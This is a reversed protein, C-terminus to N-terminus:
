KKLLAPWNSILTLPASSEDPSSSVLFRGDRTVDYMGADFNRPHARFLASPVGVKLENGTVAVSAAMVTNDPAFYYVEKGDRSWVPQSGGTNSVQWKRGGGPFPAIYVQNIGSEDSFFAIWRGDPSFRASRQNFTSPMFLSPKHEGELPLIWIGNSRSDAMNFAVFRGDRSWDTAITDASALYLLEAPSQSTASQRFLSRAPSQVSSAFVIAKGDPAWLPGRNDTGSTTFRTHMDRGPEYIWIDAKGALGFDSVAVKSGDPSVAVELYIGPAGATGSQKGHRDYWILEAKNSVAGPQYVLMGSNSVSFLARSFLSDVQLDPAIPAPEGKLEGRKADFPQANLTGERVFFLEGQSYEANFATALVLKSSKDSLSGMRVNSENTASGTPSTVYLFHEGDPLFHPWRHSHEERMETVQVPKGGSAPVSFIPSFRGASFVIINRIGWSGGRADEVDCIVEPPGGEVAIKKLKGGAFFGLYRGDPSWFPARSDDTGPLPKAETSDLSRLWVSRRGDKMVEFAIKTGDPSIAPAGNFGMLSFAAKEPPLIATRVVPQPSSVVRWYAGGAVLALLLFAAATSWATWERRKRHAAVPAAVGAQSGGEAIWKLQLKVDHATQWREDPDKAVCTKVVREFAPPTLPQLSSIPPPESALISAVLSAQTKGEFPRRGAAMEYLVCGFAFLDSRPDADKGEIQEPAMYQFTGVITGEATLPRQDQSTTMAGLASAALTAGAMPKALGFDLLKLGDKTVMVNGPKLDRHVVGQKHARELAEAMQIGYALVQEIPLPGRALREALSEGELYELVLFDIGDQHGVDYLTCINPHKLSSIARAEREFRERFKGATSLHQPLIKIAVDRQLRTDRARYVEGMGGAGLPSLVEYPGLKTGSVLSM